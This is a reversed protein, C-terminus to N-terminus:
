VKQTNSDSSEIVKEGKQNNAASSEIIKGGKQATSSEIIKEGQFRWLHYDKVFGFRALHYRVEMPDTYRKNDCKKCPCRIRHKDLYAPKSSAVKIFEEIGELFRPNWGGEPLYRRYMWQRSESM